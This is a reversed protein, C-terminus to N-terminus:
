FLEFLFISAGCATSMAAIIEDSMAESHKVNALDNSSMKRKTLDRQANTLLFVFLLKRGLSPLFSHGVSWGLSHIRAFYDYFLNCLLRYRFCWLLLLGKKAWIVTSPLWLFFLSVSASPSFFFSKLLGIITECSYSHSEYGVPIVHAHICTYNIRDFLDRLDWVYYLWGNSGWIVGEGWFFRFCVFQVGMCVVSMQVGGVEGGGWGRWCFCAIFGLVLSSFNVLRKCM